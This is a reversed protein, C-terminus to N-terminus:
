KRNDHQWSLLKREMLVVLGYLLLAMAILTFIAVFVMATDYQGRAV